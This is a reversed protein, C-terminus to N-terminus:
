GGYIALFIATWHLSFQDCHVPVSLGVQAAIKAWVDCEMPTYGVYEGPMAGCSMKRQGWDIFVKYPVHYSSTSVIM